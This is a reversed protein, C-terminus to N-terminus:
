PVEGIAVKFQWYNERMQYHVENTQRRTDYLEQLAELVDLNSVLNHSYDEKQLNFNNESATVAEELAKSQNLSALCNQYAQKIELDAQRKELSYSLKSEKWRTVAQKLNGLNEGGRSLPVNIKFLVDWSIGSQFGERKEYVNSDLSIEPWFKSQAEIVGRWMTKMAQKSAEVDPRVEVLELYGELEPTIEVIPTDDQLRKPDVTTGVLFELVHVSVAYLGHVRALESELIKMRSTATALESTRSRGIKEREALEQIREEYSKHIGEIIERDRAEKLVAYFARAVDMFLLQEARIREQKRQKKLSGAAGLAAISKFGQFLPQTIVFKRERRDRATFTSGVTSSGGGSQNGLSDQRFHTILFDVDGFIEGTAKLFEAETEEIAEKKIAITESRKLAMQYCDLLSLSPAVSKQTARTPELDKHPPKKAIAWGKPVSIFIFLYLFVIGTTLITRSKAFSTKKRSCKKM